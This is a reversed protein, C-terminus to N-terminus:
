EEGRIERQYQKALAENEKMVQSMATGIDLTKGESQSAKVLAEAKEKIQATASTADAAKADEGIKNDAVVKNDPLNVLLDKKGEDAMILGVWQDVQDAKIAGRAVHETVEQRVEKEKSAKVSAELSTIRDQMGKVEAAAIVVNGEKGTVASAAVPQAAAPTESPNVPQQEEKKEEEQKPAEFGFKAQEEATLNDKNEALFNKEEESLQDVSKARVEELTMSKEKQESANIYTVNVRSESAGDASAKIAGLAKFLPINTLGGGVLVNEVIHDYDEPDCWGGNGKPYFEPSFFKYMGGNIAEKGKESWEVTAFLTNGDTELAKMWGAAEKHNEHSFDIPAGAKGGDALGIGENFHEVYEYLDEGSIMFDGHYPTRWVGAKLIEIRTPLQGSKDAKIALGAFIQAKKKEVALTNM